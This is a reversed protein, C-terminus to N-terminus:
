KLAIPVGIRFYVLASRRRFRARGEKRGKLQSELKDCQEENYSNNNELQQRKKVATDARQSQRALDTIARALREESRDVQFPSLFPVFAFQLKEYDWRM